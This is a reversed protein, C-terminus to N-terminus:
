PRIVENTGSVCALFLQKINSATREISRTQLESRERKLSAASANSTNSTNSNSSTSSKLSKLSKLCNREYHQAINDIVIISNDVMMGVGLILGSLSIINISLGMLHFCLLSLVLSVPITIGILLPSRVDRLFLFMVFFALLAGQWLSQKLNGISYDLLQTQDRVIAFELDPYDTEFHRVLAHLSKKLQRMQADSQKIVALTITEGKDSVIKGSLKQPHEIVQAVDKLQMLRNCARFFINEIDEKNRLTSEFRVNYVYQGDKISLNGLQIDNTAIRNELMGLTLNLADLKEPDPIILIETRALGSMDVMAVEPLQELRKRIVNSAFRSLVVFESSVPYLIQSKLNSIEPKLNSTEPKAGGIEVTNRNLNSTQSRRDRLGSEPQQNSPEPDSVRTDSLKSNGLKGDPRSDSIQFRLDSVKKQTVNLYFVPVDSVNAKIVRPRQIERPLYSMARDVKENVEIFAYDVNAGYAFQLRIISSGDITESNIDDLHAVQMLQQRLGNVVSNELERAPTNPSSVQVTIEPIAIDPMLSVPIKTVSVLGVILIAIFTMTVAIPKNLLFKVM